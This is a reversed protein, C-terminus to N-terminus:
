KPPTWGCWLKGKRNHALIEKIEASPTDDKADDRPKNQECWVSRPDSLLPKTSACGALLICVAFIAVQKCSACLVVAKGM